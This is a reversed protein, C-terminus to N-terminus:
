HKANKWDIFSGGPKQKWISAYIKSTKSSFFARM